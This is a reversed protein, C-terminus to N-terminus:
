NQPRDEPDVRAGAPLLLVTGEPVPGSPNYKANLRYIDWWREADGLTHRAMERFMEGGRRVRYTPGGPPVSWSTTPASPPAAVPRPADLGVPAPSAPAAPASPLPVGDSIASPYQKELVRAPPLFVPQGANLIPPDQRVPESARPHNRNFLLLAREYRPSRYYQESISRFSDGPRCAYTEEDFSDVVTGTEASARVVGTGGPVTIPPSVVAPPTGLPPV